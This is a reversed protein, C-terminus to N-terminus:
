PPAVACSPSPPVRSPAGALPQQIAADLVLGGITGPPDQSGSGGCAVFLVLTSLFALASTAKM